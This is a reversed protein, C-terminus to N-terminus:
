KKKKLESLLETLYAQREKFMKIVQDRTMVKVPSGSAKMKKLTKKDNFMKPFAEALKAIVAPPAGKPLIVGRYNVSSNDVDIGNEKFTPVDPLFDHRELDAVALIKIRDKNRFSDSLNNFGAKVKGSVVSQMAPVGGKEPIYTLKIGAAKMLQLAAIHHGVYMGAGSVTIKGPNAKAYAVFDKVNKFPSDKPVILVAPDAGWNAVPEFTDINYKTPYVISQAIFHPVNYSAITYGDKSGKQVFWNWGVQGGAGPKNIIVIPQGLYQEKGSMMTVIRAQFDTAGGPSYTVIMSIPKDPYNEAMAPISCALLLAAAMAVAAFRTFFKKRKM